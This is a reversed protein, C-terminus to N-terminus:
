KVPPLNVIDVKLKLLPRPRRKQLKEQFTM